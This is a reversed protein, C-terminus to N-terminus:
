LHIIQHHRLLILLHHPQHITSLTHIITLQYCCHLPAMNHAPDPWAASNPPLHFIHPRGNGDHFASPSQTSICQCCSCQFPLQSSISTKILQIVYNGIVSNFLDVFCLFAELRTTSRFHGELWHMTPPPRRTRRWMGPGLINGCM